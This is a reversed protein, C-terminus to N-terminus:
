RLSRTGRPAEGPHPSVAALGSYAVGLCPELMGCGYLAAYIRAYQQVLKVYQRTEQIPIHELFVDRDGYIPRERWQRARTPGANYASLADEPRGDFRNLMQALYTTGLRINTAADTLLEPTYRLGLSTAVEQATAPMLQMLGMAGASSRISAHFLSEQRILGAVFFPDLGRRAAEAFIHESHPFPHVIRLLRLNWAGEGRQIERGLPVGQLPLEGANLAEAFDYVATGQARFHNTLEELEFAFSGVTPVVQHVRLRLVANRLERDLGVNPPPGAPIGLPLVPAGIRNGAELGYFSLADLEHVEQWLPLAGASDGLRERTLAGWYAAQQRGATRRSGVRLRDFLHDAETVRNELYLTSGLQVLLLETAPDRIPVTLLEDLRSRARPGYGTTMEQRLLLALGEESRVSEPDLLALQRLRAEGETAAGRSLASRASWYLAESRLALEVTEALLPALEGEAERYRQLEFLSRGVLLRLASREGLGLGADPHLSPTLRTLAREWAGVGFLARGIRRELEGDLPFPLRDLLRAAERASANEPGGELAAVLHPWAGISDGLELSLRGARLEAAFRSSVGTELARRTVQLAEQLKGEERLADAHFSWGWRSWLISTSPIEALASAVEGGGMPVLLEARILPRWDALAPLLALASDAEAVARAHEGTRRSEMAKELLAFAAAEETPSPLPRRLLDALPDM